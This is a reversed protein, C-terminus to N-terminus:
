FCPLIPRQPHPNLELDRATIKDVSELANALVVPLDDRVLEGTSDINQEAKSYADNLRVLWASMTQHIEVDTRSQHKQYYLYPSRFTTHRRSLDQAFVPFLAVFNDWDCQSTVTAKGNYDVTNFYHTAWVSVWWVSELDNLIHHKWIVKPACMMQLQQLVRVHGYQRIFAEASMFRM